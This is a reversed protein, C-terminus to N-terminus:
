VTVLDRIQTFRSEGIGRVSRLDEVSAFGGRRDREAIIAEALTPGIGPLTELDSVTAANVNISGSPSTPDGGPNPESAIVGAGPPDGVRAVYIRQGDVLPAALNLRDLDADARAGGASDIADVTRTGARLFVVGPSRVAGAVHVVVQATPSTVATALNSTTSLTTGPTTYGNVASAAPPSATTDRYWYAGASIAVVVVAAAVLRGDHRWREWRATLADISRRGDLPVPRGLREFDEM